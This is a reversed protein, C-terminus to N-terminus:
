VTKRLGLLSAGVIPNRCFLEVINPIKNLVYGDIPTGMGKFHTGLERLIHAEVELRATPLCIRAAQQLYVHTNVDREKKIQDDPM